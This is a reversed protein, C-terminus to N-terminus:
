AALCDGWCVCLHLDEHLCQHALSNCMLDLGIVGSIVDFSFDSVLFADWRVLLTQNKCAFLQLVVASERVVIGLFLRGQVQHKTQPHCWRARGGSAQGSTCRCCSSSDCTNRGGADGHQWSRCFTHGHWCRCELFTLYPGEMVEEAWLTAVQGFEKAQPGRCLKGKM